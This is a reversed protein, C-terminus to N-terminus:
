SSRQAGFKDRVLAYSDLLALTICCGAITYLAEDPFDLLVGWVTQKFVYWYDIEMDVEM